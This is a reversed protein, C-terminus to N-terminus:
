DADDLLSPPDVVWWAAKAMRRSMPKTKEGKVVAHAPEDDFPDREVLLGMSEVLGVTIAALGYGFHGVLLSEPTRRAALVESGIIVSM